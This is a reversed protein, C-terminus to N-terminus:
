QTWNVAGVEAGRALTRFMKRYAALRNGAPELGAAAVPVPEVHVQHGALRVPKFERALDFSWVRGRHTAQAAHQFQDIRVADDEGRRALLVANAGLLDQGENRRRIALIEKFNRVQM